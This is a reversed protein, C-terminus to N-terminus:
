DTLTQRGKHLSFVFTICNEGRFWHFLLYICMIKQSSKQTKYFFFSSFHQQKLRTIQRVSKKNFLAHKKKCTKLTKPTYLPRWTRDCAEHASAQHLKNLCSESITIKIYM